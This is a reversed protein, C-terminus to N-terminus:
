GATPRCPRHSVLSPTTSGTPCPILLAPFHRWRAASGAAVRGWASRHWPAHRFTRRAPAWRRSGSSSTRRRCPLRLPPAIAKAYAGASQTEEDRNSRPPGQCSKCLTSASFRGSLQRSLQGHSKDNGSQQRDSDRGRGDGRCIGRLCLSPLLVVAVGVALPVWAGIRPLESVRFGVIPAFVPLL